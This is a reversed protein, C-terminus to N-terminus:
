RLGAAAPQQSQNSGADAMQSRFGGGGEGLCVIRQKTFSHKHHGILVPLNLIPNLMLFTFGVANYDGVGKRWKQQSVSCVTYLYSEDVCVLKLASKRRPEANAEGGQWM